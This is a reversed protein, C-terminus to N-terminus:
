KRKRFLRILLIVILVVALPGLINYGIKYGLQYSDDADAHGIQNSISLNGSFKLINIIENSSYTDQESKYIQVMYMNKNLYFGVSEINYTKGNMRAQYVFTNLKLNSKEVLEKQLLKGNSQKLAGDIMGKYSLNLDELNKIDLANDGKLPAKSILMKNAKFETVIFQQGLTDHVKYSESVTISINTDIKYEMEKQAFSTEAM